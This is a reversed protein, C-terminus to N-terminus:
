QKIIKITQQSSGNRIKLFYIGIPLFSLNVDMKSSVLTESYVLEGLVNLISIHTQPFTSEIILRDIFPNPYVSLDDSKYIHEDLGVTIKCNSTAEPYAIKGVIRKNTNGNISKFGGAAYITDHFITATVITNDISDPYVCWQSGDFVALNSAKMNAVVDFIGFAFLKGQHVLLKSVIGNGFTSDFGVDYWNYGNWKMITNGANGDAKFFYGGVYLEDKYIAMSSIGGMSGKIGGGVDKWISGDYRIIDRLAPNSSEDINGGLYLENKYLIMDAPRCMGGANTFPLSVPEFSIGDYTGLGWAKQGGISDFVGYIYFKNLARYFGVVGYSDGYRFARTPLTDWINGDWLALGPAIVHGMSRFTGGVLLKGNYEAGCYATGNATPWWPVSTNIGSSLSDYSSGNWSFIGRVTRNNVTNIFKSSLILEDHVSDLFISEMQQGFFEYPLSGWAQAGAKNFLIALSFIFSGLRTM